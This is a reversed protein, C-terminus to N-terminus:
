RIQALESIATASKNAIILAASTQLTKVSKKRTGGIATVHAQITSPSIM